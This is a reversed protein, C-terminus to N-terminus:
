RFNNDDRVADFVKDIIKIISVNKSTTCLVIRAM